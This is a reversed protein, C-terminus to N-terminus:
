EYFGVFGTAAGQARMRATRAATQTLNASEAWTQVDRLIPDLLEAPGSLKPLAKQKIQLDLAIQFNEESDPRLLGADTEADFSNALFLLVDDRVRFAFHLRHPYLLDNLTQLAHVARDPFTSDLRTLRERARAVHPIRASLFLNQREAPSATLDEDLRASGKSPFDAFMPRADFDLTNARDLVKRSFAHTTEDRNITGTVFFNPPLVFDPVDAHLAVRRSRSELVSLYDALYYEVRALNMEDLCVFFTKQRNEPLAAARALDLFPTSVYRNALVNQYGFLATADAWDPRVPILRFQSPHHGTLAEAFLEAMKTKGAGSVGSLIAFPKTQLAVYYSRLALPPFAFGQGAAFEELATLLRTETLPAPPTPEAQYGARPERVLGAVPAAVPPAPARLLAAAESFAAVGLADRVAEYVVFWTLMTMAADPSGSAPLDFGYREAAETLADRKQAATLNLRRLAPRTLLPFTDPAFACLLQSATLIGTGRASLFERLRELLPGDGYFLTRLRTDFEAPRTAYLRRSLNPNPALEGALRLLRARTEADLARGARLSRDALTRAFASLAAERAARGSWFEFRREGDEAWTRAQSLLARQNDNLTFM